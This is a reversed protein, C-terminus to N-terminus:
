RRTRECHIGAVPKRGAALISSSNVNQSYGTRDSIPLCHVVRTPGGVHRDLLDIRNPSRVGSSHVHNNRPILRFGISCSTHEYWNRTKVTCTRGRSKRKEKDCFIAASNLREASEFLFIFIYSEYM